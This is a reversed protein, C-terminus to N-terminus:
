RPLAFDSRALPFVDAMLVVEGAAPLAEDPVTLVVRTPDGAADTEVVTDAVYDLQVPNGGEDLVLLHLAHEAAPYRSGPAVALDMAVSAQGTATRSVDVAGASLGAPRQAASTQVVSGLFTGPVPILGEPNCMGTLPLLAEYGPVDACVVSAALSADAAVVGQEDFRGNFEFEDLPVPGFTFTLTVGAASLRFASGDRSGALPFAFGADPDAVLRHQEDRRAGIVWLVTSDPTTSVTGAVWDYFDFGIQNVSHLMPPLPLALRALEVAGVADPGTRLPWPADGDSAQVTFSGAFPVPDRAGITVNALRVGSTAALGAVTVTYETGPDWRDLPRIVLYRGDGSRQVDVELSPEVTVLAAADPVAVMSAPLTIGDERWLLRAVVAGTAVVPREPGVVSVGSDPRAEVGCRDPSPSRLCYDYPVYWLRGAQGGVYVGRPGLAPSGNLENYAALREEDTSTDFAWRLSGSDVDVAYLRGDASGVYAIHGTGEPTRGVVPSSRIPAATDYQWAVIGDPLVGYLIGDTSGVVVLQLQGTEDEVLAPSSYIHDGTTVTWRVQGTDADIAYLRGDFSGIFLTGDTSLAPSSAIFGLTTRRWRENGTTDLARVALDLSGWFTTGDEAVAPVTWVANGTSAAWRQSGDPTVAYAGGGTNGQYITGDPGVTPSGEWWSVLQDGAEPLTPEFTWVIREDETLGPETRLRYMTEDGSGVVLTRGHEGAAPLLAPATDLIGGTTFRWVETGTPDIAYLVDDSSGIMVTGDHAVVPTAFIGRGTPFAWPEDGPDVAPLPSAGTNRIDRRMSPWPADPDLGGVDGATAVDPEATDAGTSTVSLALVAGLAALVAIGRRAAPM